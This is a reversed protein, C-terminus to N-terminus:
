NRIQYGDSIIKNSLEDFKVDAEETTNFYLMHANESCDLWYNTIGVSNFLYEIFENTFSIDSQLTDEYDCPGLYIMYEGDDEGWGSESKEFYIANQSIDSIDYGDPNYLLDNFKRNKM